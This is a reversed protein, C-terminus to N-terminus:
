YFLSWCKPKIKAVAKLCLCASLCVKLENDYKVKSENSITVWTNIKKEVWRFLFFIQFPVSLYESHFCVLHLVNSEFRNPICENRQNIRNKKKKLLMCQSVWRIALGKKWRQQFVFLFELSIVQASVIFNYFCCCSPM